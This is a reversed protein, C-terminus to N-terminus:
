KDGHHHRMGEIAVWQPPHTGPQRQQTHGPQWTTIDDMCDLLDGPQAAVTL